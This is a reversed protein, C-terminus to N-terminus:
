SSKKKQLVNCSFIASLFIRRRAVHEIEDFTPITEGTKWAKLTTDLSISPIDSTKIDTQHGM